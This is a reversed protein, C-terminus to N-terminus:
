NWGHDPVDVPTLHLAALAHATKLEADQENIRRYVDKARALM